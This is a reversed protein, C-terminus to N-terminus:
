EFCYANYSLQNCTLFMTIKEPLKEQVQMDETITLYPLRLPTAATTCNLSLIVLVAIKMLGDHHLGTM